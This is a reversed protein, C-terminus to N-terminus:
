VGSVRAPKNDCMAKNLRDKVLFAWVVILSYYFNRSIDTFIRIFIEVQDKDLLIAISSFTMGTVTLLSLTITADFFRKSIVIEGQAENLAISQKKIYFATYVGFTIISLSILKLLPEKHLKNMNKKTSKITSTLQRHCAPRRLSISNLKKTNIRM